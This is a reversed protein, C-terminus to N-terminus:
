GSWTASGPLRDFDLDGLGGLCACDALGHEGRRDVHVARLGAARAAVVDLEYNDGVMLAEAPRVGLGECVAAYARPDPKAAPLESSAFVTGCGDILGTARLKSTQQNVDGNTLVAVELGAERVRRLADLADDYAEWNREYGALYGGFVSDLSEEEVPVGAAPLFDRLRRRRQEQFSVEGRRWAPYHREELEFWLPVLREIEEASLSYEPLWSHLAARQAKDHDLLTGDLDFIVAALPETM